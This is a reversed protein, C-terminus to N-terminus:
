SENDDLAHFSQSAQAMATYNQVFPQGISYNGLNLIAKEFSPDIELQSGDSSFILSSIGSTTHTGTFQTSQALDM